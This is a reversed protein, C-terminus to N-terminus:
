PRRAPALTLSGLDLPEDSRGGPMKAATFPHMLNAIVPGSAVQGSAPPAHLRAHLLYDGAPVDDFCFSGDAEVNTSYHVTQTGRLAEHYRIVGEGFRKGEETEKWTEWWKMAAERDKQPDIEKPIPPMPPPSVPPSAPASGQLSIMAYQWAPASEADPPALLKGVVPRGARSVDVQATEGPALTVKASHTPIWSSTQGHKSVVSRTVRADGPIVNEFVFRGEADTQTKYDFYIREAIRQIPSLDERRSPPEGFDLTIAEKAGPQDGILLTGEARAWPRIAIDKTDQQGEVQAFGQDHLVVLIYPERQAPLSFRGDPGTRVILHPQGRLPRGNKLYLGRTATCLAVEADALPKGDPSLVVGTVAQGKSLEVNFAVQREDMKLRRADSPLYDEAEIRLVRRSDGSTDWTARYQGNENEVLRGEQWTMDNDGSGFASGQVVRFKAVPAKTEKDVVRGSVTWGGAELTVVHEREGPAISKQVQAYGDKRIHFQLENNPIWLRSWRGEADTLLHRDSDRQISSEYDLTLAELYETVFVTAVVVGPMPEGEKDVVRLRIMEGKRLQLDVTRQETSVTVRRSDPAYGKAAAALVYKGPDCAPLRYHGNQDTTTRPYGSVHRDIFQGVIAGAVPQGQPDAVTGEVAIGEHMVMVASQSRLETISLTNLNVPSTNAHDPHRLKVSVDFERLEAPVRHCQWKGEADTRSTDNISWWLVGDRSQKRGNVTVEAGAIPQGQENRVIGGFVTGEELTFTFEKPVHAKVADGEWHAGATVHSNEWVLIQFDSVNEKPVEIIANGQTNTRYRVPGFPLNTMGRVTIGANVIPKRDSDFVHIQMPRYGPSLSGETDSKQLEQDKPLDEPAKPESSPATQGRDEELPSEAAGIASAEDARFSPLLVAGLVLLVAFAGLSLRTQLPRNTDLLRMLRRRLTGKTNCVGLAASVPDCYACAREAVHLFADGSQRRTASGAALAVDDCAYERLGHLVRGAIWVAPNFCFVTTVLQQFCAAAVDGRRVHALEHLLVWELQKPALRDCLETPLVIVPRFVGWVAPSAMRESEVVRVNQRLGIRERLAEPSLCLRDSDIPRAGRLQRSLRWQVVSFGGLLAIVVSTWALMAWAALSVSAARQNGASVAPAAEIPQIATMSEQEDPLFRSQRASRDLSSFAPPIAPTPGVQEVPSKAPGPARDSHGGILYDNTKTGEDGSPMAGPSQQWMGLRGAAYYGPSCVAWHPPVAIEVPLLLKVFVLLFLLYGFQASLRRRCALWVATVAALVVTADVTSIVVWRAWGQAMPNLWEAFM